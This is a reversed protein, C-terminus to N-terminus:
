SWVTGVNRMMEARGKDWLFWAEGGEQRTHPPAWLQCFPQPWNWGDSLKMTIKVNQFAMACVNRVIETNGNGGLCWAEGEEQHSYCLPCWCCQCFLQSCNSGVTLKMTIKVNQFEMACVNRVIETKGKGGLCWAEGEEQRNYRPCRCRKCFLQPWNPGETLWM